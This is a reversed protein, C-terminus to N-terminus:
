VHVASAYIAVQSYQVEAVRVHQVARDFRFERQRLRVDEYVSAVKGFASAESLHRVEVIPESADTGAVSM